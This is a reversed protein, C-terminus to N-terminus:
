TPRRVLQRGAIAVGLAALAAAAYCAPCHLAFASGHGSCIPGFRAEAALRPAMAQAWLVAGSAFLLVSWAWPTRAVALAPAGPRATQRFRSLGVSM